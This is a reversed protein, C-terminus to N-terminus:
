KRIVPLYIGRRSAFVLTQVLGRMFTYLNFALWLAHNGLSPALLVYAAFFVLMGSAMALLMGKTATAGIYIGDWIFAAMGCVPLLLAWLHYEASALVVAPDNSLLHLITEGFLAYLCTFLLMMGAGWLFLRKVVSVFLLRSRAGIAKGVLAEGAFAFGDMIYSFLLYLQMILANVALASDGYKAGASIFFFHVFILCLTRLFIDKNLLFFRVLGQKVLVQSLECYRRLRGYRTLLLFIGVGLGLYQALVTGLAVGEIKWGLGFVLLLSFLINAVNQIISMAMPAKSNQMGLFWGSLVFMLLSAPAGWVVINYYTRALQAVEASPHILSLAVDRVVRQLCLLVFAVALAVFIARLLVNVVEKLQRAGFAQATMGSTGMRLFAFAWYIINFLMGGVAIAGVYAAGGLHGTIAVDILGLLPVTINSVISPLAIQLIQKDRLNM